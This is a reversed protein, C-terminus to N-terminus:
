DIEKRRSILLVQNLINAIRTIEEEYLDYYGTQKLIELITRWAKIDEKNM